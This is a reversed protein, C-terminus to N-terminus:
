IRWVLQSPSVVKFRSSNQTLCLFDEHVNNHNRAPNGRTMGSCHEYKGPRTGRRNSSDSCPSGESKLTALTVTSPGHKINSVPLRSLSNNTRSPLTGIVNSELNHSGYRVDRSHTSISSLSTSNSAYEIKLRDYNQQRKSLENDTETEMDSSWAERFCDSTGCNLPKIVQQRQRVNGMVSFRIRNTRKPKKRHSSAHKGKSNTTHREPPVHNTVGSCYPNMGEINAVNRPINQTEQPPYNFPAKQDWKNGVGLPLVTTWNNETTYQYVPSNFESAHQEDCANICNTCEGHMSEVIRVPLPYVTHYDQEVSMNAVEQVSPVFNDKNLHSFRVYSASSIGRYDTRSASNSKRFNNNRFALEKFKGLWLHKQCPSFTEQKQKSSRPKYSESERWTKAERLMMYDDNPKMENHTNNNNKWISFENSGSETCTNSVQSKSPGPFMSFTIRNSHFQGLICDRNCANSTCSPLIRHSEESKFNQKLVSNVLDVAYSWQSSSPSCKLMEPDYVLHEKRKLAAFRAQGQENEKEEYSHEIADNFKKVFSSSTSKSAERISVRSLNIPTDGPRRSKESATDKKDESNFDVVSFTISKGQFDEMSSSVDKLIRNRNHISNQLSMPQIKSRMESFTVKKDLQLTWDEDIAPSSQVCKEHTQSTTDADRINQAEYSEAGNTSKTEMEEEEDQLVDKAQDAPIQENLSASEEANCGSSSSKNQALLTESAAKKSSEEGNNVDEVNEVIKDSAPKDEVNANAPEVIEKEDAVSLKPKTSIPLHSSPLKAIKSRSTYSEKISGGLPLCHNSLWEEVAKSSHKGSHQKSNEEGDKDGQKKANLKSRSVFVKHFPLKSKSQSPHKSKVPAADVPDKDKFSPITEDPSLDNSRFNSKSTSSLEYKSSLEDSFQEKESGVYSVVERDSSDVFRAELRKSKDSSLVPSAWRRDHVRSLFPAKIKTSEKKRLTFSVDIKSLAKKDRRVFKKESPTQKNGASQVNTFNSGLKLHRPLSKSNKALIQNALIPSKSRLNFCPQRVKSSESAKAFRVNPPKSKERSPNQQGEKSANFKKSLRYKTLLHKKKFLIDKAPRKDGIPGPKVQKYRSAIASNSTNLQDKAQILNPNAKLKSAITPKHFGKIDADNSVFSRFGRLGPDDNWDSESERSM